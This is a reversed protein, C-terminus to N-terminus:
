SFHTHRSADIRRMASIPDQQAGRNATILRRRVTLHAGDPRPSNVAPPTAYEQPMIRPPTGKTDARATSHQHPRPGPAMLWGGSGNENRFNSPPHYQPSMILEQSIPSWHYATGSAAGGSSAAENPSGNSDTHHPTIKESATNSVCGVCAITHGLIMTLIGSHQCLATTHLCIHTRM